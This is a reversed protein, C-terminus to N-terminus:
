AIVTHDIESWPGLEGRRNQWRASCSLFKGESEPGLQLVYPARTMLATHELLTYDSTREEAFHYCLLCGNYDSPIARSDPTSEDHFHIEVRFSGLARVGAFVPATHPSGRRTPTKDAIHLGYYAKDEDRMKKNFRISTSAFSRMAAVAAKKANDRAIRNASSNAAEYAEQASIYASAAGATEVCDTNNWGFATQNAASTIESVWRRALNAFDAERRPLWDHGKAM